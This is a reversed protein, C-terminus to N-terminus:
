VSVSSFALFVQVIRTVRILPCSYRGPRDSLIAERNLGPFAVRSRSQYGAGKKM